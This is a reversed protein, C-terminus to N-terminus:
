VLPACPGRGLRALGGLDGAGFDTIGPTIEPYMLQSADDVHDLGVLHGFEHLVISEAIDRGGYLAMIEPFQGGDLSVDGTVYVSPSDWFDSPYSGARGVVDGALGPNEAETQFAVLVPAWRDGYRQPQYAERTDTLPEDTPGDYRFQLGTAQSVRAAAAHVMEEGGPPMGAPNLVYHIPRCPDYAVPSVGNDLLNLYAHSEGGIPAPPASGLRTTAGGPTPRDLHPLPDDPAKDRILPAVTLASAAPSPAAAAALTEQFGVWSAPSPVWAVAAAVATLAALAITSAGRRGLRTRGRRAPTTEGHNV